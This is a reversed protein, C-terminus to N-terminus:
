WLTISSIDAIFILFFPWCLFFKVWPMTKVCLLMMVGGHGIHELFKLKLPSAPALSEAFGDVKLTLNESACYTKFGGILRLNMM